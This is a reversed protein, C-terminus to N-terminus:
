HSLLAGRIFISSILYPKSLCSLPCADASTPPKSGAALRTRDSSVFMPRASFRARDTNVFLRPRQVRVSGGKVKPLVARAGDQTM